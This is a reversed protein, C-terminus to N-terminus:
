QNAVKYIECSWALLEQNTQLAVQPIPVSSGVNLFVCAQPSVYNVAM